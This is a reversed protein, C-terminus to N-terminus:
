AWAGSADAPTTRGTWATASAPGAPETTLDRVASDRVVSFRLHAATVVSSARNM